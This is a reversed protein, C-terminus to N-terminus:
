LKIIGSIMQDGSDRYRYIDLFKEGTYLRKVYQFYGVEKCRTDNVFTYNEPIELEPFNNSLWKITKFEGVGRISFTFAIYKNKVLSLQM